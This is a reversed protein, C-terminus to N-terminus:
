EDIVRKRIIEKIKEKNEKYDSEWIRLFNKNNEEMFKNKIIDKEIKKRQSEFLPGDPYKKPNCHWFDGDFEIYLDKEPIYVDCYQNIESVREQKVFEVGLPKICDDIFDLEEKSSISFDGNKIRELMRQRAIPAYKIAIQRMKEAHEPSKPKGTLAMRIKRSRESGPEYIKRLEKIEEKSYTEEWSKGKNWQIREGSKFQQRRTEASKEKATENHGWNNHVRSAHGRVYDSFHAGGEYSIDTYEGCGCKCKPREGNYAYDALLKEPTMDDGHVKYRFIHKTLGNYTGFKRDCYPCKFEGEQKRQNISRGSYKFTYGNISKLNGLCCKSINSKTSGISDAAEQASNFVAVQEGDKFQLVEKKLGM